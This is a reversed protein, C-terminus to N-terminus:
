SGVAQGTYAAVSPVAILLAFAIYATGAVQNATLAWCSAVLLVSGGVGLVFAARQTHARGLLASAIGFAGAAVLAGLL